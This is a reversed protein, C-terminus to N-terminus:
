MLFDPYEETFPNHEEDRPAGDSYGYVYEYAVKAQPSLTYNIYFQGVRRRTTLNDHKTAKLLTCVETRFEKATKAFGNNNDKCWAKYVNYIRSTTCGDEIKLNPRQEVCENWFAIVTNNEARYNERAQTVSGPETFRYGNAIVQKLAIIAKYV